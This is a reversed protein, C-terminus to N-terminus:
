RGSRRLAAHLLSLTTEGQELVAFHGGTLVRTRFRRVTQDRWAEISEVSARPDATAAIATIPVDLPSRPRYRFTDKVILDARLPRLILRLVRPDSLFLEPTGGLSRLLEVIREDSLAGEATAPDAHSPWQPASCGSVLLHM